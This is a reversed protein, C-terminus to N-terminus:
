KKIIKVSQTNVTVIYLGAPLQSLSLTTVGENAVTRLVTAGKIDVVTVPAGATLGTVNLLDTTVTPWVAVEDPAIINQVASVEAGILVRDIDSYSVTEGSGSKSQLTLATSGIEIRNVDALTVEYQSGDTSIVVVGKDASASLVCSAGFALGCLMKTYIHKM